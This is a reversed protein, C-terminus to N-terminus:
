LESPELHSFATYEVCLTRNQVLFSLTKIENTMSSTLRKRKESSPREKSGISFYMANRGRYRSLKALFAERGNFQTVCNMRDHTTIKVRCLIAYLIHITHESTYFHLSHCYKSIVQAFMIRTRLKTAAHIVKQDVTIQWWVRTHAVIMANALVCLAVPM